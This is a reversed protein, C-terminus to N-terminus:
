NRSSGEKQGAERITQKEAAVSSFPDFDNLKEFLDLCM